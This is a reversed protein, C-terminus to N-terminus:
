PYVDQKVSYSFATPKDKNFLLNSELFVRPIKGSNLIRHWHLRSKPV